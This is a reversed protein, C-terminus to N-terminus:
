ESKEAPPPTEAQEFLGFTMEGKGESVPAPKKKEEKPTDVVKVAPNFMPHAELPKMETLIDPLFSAM